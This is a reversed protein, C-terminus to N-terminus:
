APIPKLRVGLASEHCDCGHLVQRMSDLRHQPPMDPLCGCLQFEPCHMTSLKAVLLDAASEERWRSSRFCLQVTRLGPVKASPCKDGICLFFFFLRHVCTLMIADPM